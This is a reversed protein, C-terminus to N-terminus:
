LLRRRNEEVKAQVAQLFDREMTLQGITRLLRDKEATAEHEAKQRAKIAKPEDFVGPAKELFERRWNTLQNPNINHEAAIENATREERLLELVLNVKFDSSYHRKKGM